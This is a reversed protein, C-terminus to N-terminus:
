KVEGQWPLFSSFAGMGEQGEIEERRLHFIHHEDQYATSGITGVAPLCGDSHFFVSAYFVAQSQHLTGLTGHM